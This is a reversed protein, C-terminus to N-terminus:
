VPNIFCGSKVESTSESLQSLNQFFLTEKIECYYDTKALFPQPIKMKLSTRFHKPKRDPLRRKTKGICFSNCDGAIRETFLQPNNHVIFRDEHPFFSKRCRTNQFQIIKLNVCSLFKYVCSKLRKAVHLQRAFRLLSALHSATEKQHYISRGFRQYQWPNM